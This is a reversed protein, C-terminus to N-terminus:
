RHKIWNSKIHQEHYKIKIIKYQLHLNFTPTKVIFM